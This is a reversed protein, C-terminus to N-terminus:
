CNQKNKVNEMKKKIIIETNNKTNWIKNNATNNNGLSINDDNKDNSNIM